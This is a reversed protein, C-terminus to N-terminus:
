NPILLYILKPNNYIYYVFSVMAIFLFLFFFLMRKKFTKRRETNKEKSLRLLSERTKAIGSQKSPVFQLSELISSLSSNRVQQLRKLEAELEDIRKQQNEITINSNLIRNRM